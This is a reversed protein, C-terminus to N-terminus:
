HDHDAYYEEWNDHPPEALPRHDVVGPSEILPFSSEAMRVADFAPSEAFVAAQPQEHVVQEVTGAPQHRVESTGDGDLDVARADSWYNGRDSENWAIQANTSAYASEDNAVFSNGAVLEDSSGATFHVGAQNELILNDVIENGHANYVYFGNGNAVVANDRIETHDVEKVLIGQGSPGANNVATNNTITLNESVMLAFGVDNDFAVNNELRNDDSYMYHVGYRLDWAVNGEAVVGESWSFYIGDRATTIHNDRLEAGDARDLHVGNGRNTEAVSERGAITTEEVTVDDSEGIWIGYTTETIRLDTLTSENGNVLVGADEDSREHGSERIWVGELTVDDADVHVVTGEGGGDLLAREDAVDTTTITLGPTEITVHEEFLGELAVTDGPEAADVADQVSDYERDEGDITAVGPETPPEADHVDPVDPTWGDVTRELDSGSGDAAVVAAAGTAVLVAVALAVFWLERSM